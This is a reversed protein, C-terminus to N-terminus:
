PKNFASKPMGCVPCKWDEPLDEFPGQAGDYQHGCISCTWLNGAPKEFSPANPPTKGKVVRHYFAYTMPNGVGPQADSLRGVFLTHTPLELVNELKCELWSCTGIQLVPFGLPTL